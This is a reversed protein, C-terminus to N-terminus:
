DGATPASELERISPAPKKSQSIAWVMVGALLIV